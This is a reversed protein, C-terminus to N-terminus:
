EELSKSIKCLYVDEDQIDFIVHTGGLSVLGIQGDPEIFTHRPDETLEIGSENCLKRFESLTTNSDPIWGTINLGEPFQVPVGDWFYICILDIIKDRKSSKNGFFFQVSGYKWIDAKILSVGEPDGLLTRLREKSDGPSIPGLHGTSVFYLLSDM